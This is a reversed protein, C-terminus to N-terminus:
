KSFEIDIAYIWSAAKRLTRPLQFFLALSIHEVLVTQM